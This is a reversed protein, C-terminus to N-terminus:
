FHGSACTTHLNAWTKIEELTGRVAILEPALGTVILFGSLFCVSYHIHLLQKEVHSSRPRLFSPVFVM